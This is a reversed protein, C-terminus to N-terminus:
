AAPAQFGLLVEEVIGRVLAVKYANQEMPQAGEVAAAAARAITAADLPRGTVAREAAASRWPTPAVGGLVVRAEATRRNTMRIAVAASVLAFDWAGRERVKRYTSRVGSAPPLQVETVIEGPDLVTERTRDKSPLVFFSELPITRSGGPGTISVQAGLAVLAPATDSPHVIFCGDGGFLCHYRNEGGAAYCL